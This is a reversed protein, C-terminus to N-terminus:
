VLALYSHIPLLIFISCSVWIDDIYQMCVHLKWTLVTVLHTMLVTFPSGYPANYPHTPKNLMAEMINISNAESLRQTNVPAM